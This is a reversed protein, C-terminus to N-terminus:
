DIYNKITKMRDIFLDKLEKTNVDFVVNINAPKGAANILDTVTCGRTHEGDIDVEVYCSQINFMEPKLFYAAPIITHMKSDILGDMVRKCEQSLKVSDNVIRKLSETEEKTSKNVKQQVELGCMTVPAGSNFVIYASEPDRCINYEGVPTFDGGFISGGMICISEIRNKLEPYALLFIAINTLPGTALINIKENSKKIADSIFDVACLSHPNLVMKNLQEKQGKEARLACPEFGDNKILPRMSGSAVSINRGLIELTELTSELANELTQRGMVVTIGMLDIEPANLLLLLTYINEIGNDVDMIIPIKKM